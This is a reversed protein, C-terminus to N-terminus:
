RGMARASISARPSSASSERGSGVDRYEISVDPNQSAYLGIWKKYLPAPFTAGAGELRVKTSSTTQAAGHSLCTLVTFSAVVATAWWLRRGARGTNM